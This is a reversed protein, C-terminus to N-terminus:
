REWIMNQRVRLFLGFYFDFIITKKWLAGKIDFEMELTQKM